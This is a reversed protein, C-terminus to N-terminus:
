EAEQYRRRLWNGTYKAVWRWDDPCLAHVIANTGNIRMIPIGGRPPVIGSREDRVAWDRGRWPRHASRPHDIINGAGPIIYVITSVPKTDGLRMTCRNIVWAIRSIRDNRKEDVNQPMRTARYDRARDLIIQRRREYEHRKRERQYARYCAGCLTSTTTTSRKSIIYEQRPYIDGCRKCPRSTWHAPQRPM